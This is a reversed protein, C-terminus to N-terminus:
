RLGLNRSFEQHRYVATSLGELTEDAQVTKTKIDKLIESERDRRVMGRLAGDGAGHRKAREDTSKYGAEDGIAVGTDGSNL